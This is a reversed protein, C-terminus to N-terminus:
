RRYSNKTMLILAKNANLSKKLNFEILAILAESITKLNYEHQYIKLFTLQKETLDINISEKSERRVYEFLVRDFDNLPENDVINKIYAAISKNNQKIANNQHLTISYRNRM